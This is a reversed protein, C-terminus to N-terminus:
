REAEENGLHGRDDPEAEATPPQDQAPPAVQESVDPRQPDVAAAPHDPESAAAPQELDHPAHAHTDSAPTREPAPPANPDTTADPGPLDHPPEPLQRDLRYYQYLEAQEAETIHGDSSINPADSIYDKTYRVRIMDESIRAGQLPAFIEKTGFLGTKFTVWAPRQTHDDLYIHGVRGLTEGDDSVVTSEYLQNLQEQSLAM